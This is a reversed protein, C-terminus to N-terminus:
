RRMAEELVTQIDGDYLTRDGVTLTMRAQDDARSVVRIPQADRTTGECTVGKDSAQVCVPATLVEIGADVLLDNAAYRVGTVRDGGVPALASVQSCGSVLCVAAVGIVLRKM